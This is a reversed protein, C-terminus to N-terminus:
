IPVIRRICDPNLQSRNAREKKKKNKNKIKICRERYWLDPPGPNRVVVHISSYYVCPVRITVAM